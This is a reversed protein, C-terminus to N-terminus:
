PAWVCGVQKACQDPKAMVTCALPEGTCKAEGPKAFCGTQNGCVSDPIKDCKVPKGTCHGDDGASANMSVSVSTLLMLLPLTSIRLFNKM